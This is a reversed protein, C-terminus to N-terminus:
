KSNYRRRYDRYSVLAMVIAFPIVILIKTPARHKYVLLGTVFAVLSFGIPRYFLEVKRYRDFLTVVGSKGGEMARIVGLLVVLDEVSWPRDIIGVAMVASMPLRRHIKIFNYAFYNLAPAATHNEM